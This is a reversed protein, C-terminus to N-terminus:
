SQGLHQTPTARFLCSYKLFLHKWPRHGSGGGLFFFSVRSTRQGLGPTLRRQLVSTDSLLFAMGLSINLDSETPEKFLRWKWDQMSSRTILNRGNWILLPIQEQETLRRKMQFGIRDMVTFLKPKEAKNKMSYSNRDWFEILLHDGGWNNPFVIVM